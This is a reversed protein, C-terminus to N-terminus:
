HLNLRAHEPGQRDRLGMVYLLGRTREEGDGNDKRRNSSCVLSTGAGPVKCMSNRRSCHEEEPDIQGWFLCGM